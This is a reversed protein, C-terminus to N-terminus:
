PRSVAMAEPAHASTTGAYTGTATCRETSHCAIGFLTADQASGSAAGSPLRVRVARGWRGRARAVVMALVVGHTGRYSGAATCSHATCSVGNLTASQGGREAGAPLRTFGTARHWRGDSSSVILPYSRAQRDAYSGTAVCARASTCSVSFLEAVPQVSANAPM